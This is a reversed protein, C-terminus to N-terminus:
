AGIQSKYGNNNLQNNMEEKEMKTYEHAFKLKYKKYLREILTEYNSKFLMSYFIKDTIYGTERISEMQKNIYKTTEQLMNLETIIYLLLDAEPIGTTKDIMYEFETYRSDNKITNSLLQAAKLWNFDEMPKYKAEFPTILKLRIISYISDTIEVINRKSQKVKVATYKPQKNKENRKKMISIQKETLTITKPVVLEPETPIDFFTETRVDASNNDVSYQMESKKGSFDPYEQEPKIVEQQKTIQEEGNTTPILSPKWDGQFGGCQDSDIDTAYKRKKNSFKLIYESFKKARDIDPSEYITYRRGTYKKNESDYNFEAVIYGAYGLENFADKTIKYSDKSHKSIEELHFEWNDPLTIMYSILGKARLSLNRDKLPINNIRTWNKDKEVRCISQRKNSIKKM